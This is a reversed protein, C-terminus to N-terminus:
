FRAYMEDIWANRLYLAIAAAAFFGILVVLAAVTRRPAATPSMRLAWVFFLPLSLALGGGLAFSLLGKILTANAIVGVRATLPPNLTVM